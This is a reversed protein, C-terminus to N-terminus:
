RSQGQFASQRSTSDTQKGRARLDPGIQGYPLGAIHSATLTHLDLGQKIATAPVDLRACAAVAALACLVNRKGPVQLRVEVAFRGRHFARFRYRGRDERLDTGWWASGRELSLWEVAGFWDRAAAGVAADPGLALVVGDSPMSAFLPRLAATRAEADREPEVDLVLALKPALPELAAGTEFTEFVLHPGAGWRAWGGLQPAATGLVLTPDLGARTLVWGIMAAAVGAMRRGTVTLGIKERM